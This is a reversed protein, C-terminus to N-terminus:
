VNRLRSSIAQSLYYRSCVIRWCNSHLISILSLPMQISIRMSNQIQAGVCCIYNSTKTSNCPPQASKCSHKAMADQASRPFFKLPFPRPNSQSILPMQLPMLSHHSRSLSPLFVGFLTLILLM